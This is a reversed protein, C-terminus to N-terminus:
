DSKVFSRSPCYLLLIGVILFVISVFIYYHNQSWYIFGIPFAASFIIFGLISVKQANKDNRYKYFTIGLLIGTVILFASIGALILFIEMPMINEIPGPHVIESSIVYIAFSFGVTMLTYAYFGYGLNNNFIIFAFGEIILSFGITFQIGYLSANLSILFLGVLIFVTGLLM